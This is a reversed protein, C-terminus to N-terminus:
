FGLKDKRIMWWYGFLAGLATMMVLVAVRGGWALAYHRGEVAMMILIYQVVNIPFQKLREMFPPANSKLSPYALALFNLFSPLLLLAVAIVVGIFVGFVLNPERAPRFFWGLYLGLAAGIGVFRQWGYQEPLNAKRPQKAKNTKKPKDSM